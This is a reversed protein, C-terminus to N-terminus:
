KILVNIKSKVFSRVFRINSQFRVTTRTKKTSYTVENYRPFRNFDFERGDNKRKTGSKKKTDETKFERKRDEKKLERKRDEKRFKRKRDEKKSKRKSKEKCKRRHSNPKRSMESYM